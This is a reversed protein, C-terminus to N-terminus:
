SGSREMGGPQRPAHRPALPVVVGPQGGAQLLEGGGIEMLLDTGHTADSDESAIM